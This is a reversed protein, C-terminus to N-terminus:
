DKDPSEVAFPDSKSPQSPLPPRPLVEDSNAAQWLMAALITANVRVDDVPAHDLTDISSHHTRSGYDLPDQVFQFGPLGISQMFEHDTGGTRKMVVADAGMSAFPALWERLMPAAGLNNEAYIGRIRGAGNDLNFYAKLEDYGPKKRIPFAGTWHAFRQLSDLSPDLPREALNKEIYATSGMIAQEEGAWLAFRITRKPKVGMSSIIRAAEIVLASPVGDDTAGDAAFWSDFHAGAMVYGAKPDSGKIDAIVNDATLDTENYRAAIDLTLSPAKGAIELRALRRYDEAALEMFPLALTKGPEFLYGEGHVLGFDRYSMRVMAVAGEAKLFRSLELPFAGMEVFDLYPMTEDSPLAYEDLAALSAADHRKFQPKDSQSPSGPLTVLVIKGALKGRWKDFHEAKSMPALVVPATLSGDTPPSWGVPIARLAIKRPSAMSASWADLNWGLGFDFSERHADTLGYAKFKAIAWDAARDYNESNTLRPGIGDMLESATAMAESHNLGEDVIEAIQADSADAQVPMPTLALAAAGGMAALITKRM